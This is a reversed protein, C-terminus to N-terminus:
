VLNIRQGRGFLNVKKRRIGRLSRDSKKVGERLGPGTYVVRWM